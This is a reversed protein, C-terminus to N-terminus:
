KRVIKGDFYHRLKGNMSVGDGNTEELGNILMNEEM